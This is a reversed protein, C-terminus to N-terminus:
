KWNIETIMAKAIRKLGDMFYCITGPKARHKHIENVREHMLIWMQAKGTLSIEEDLDIIVEGDKNLFVPHICFYNEENDYGEYSFDSRMGQFPQKISNNNEDLLFEYEVCFDHLDRGWLEQYTIFKEPMELNGFCGVRGAWLGRM